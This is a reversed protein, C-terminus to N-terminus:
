WWSKREALAFADIAPSTPVPQIYVKVEADRLRRLCEIEHRDLSVSETLQIKGPANHINGINLETLYLGDDLAEVVSDLGAFLMITLLGPGSHQQAMFLVAQHVSLIEVRIKPPAAMRVIKAQLVNDTLEDDAVVIRTARIYPVWAAVIQGHILRDDVRYFITNM